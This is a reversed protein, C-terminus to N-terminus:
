DEIECLYKFTLGLPVTGVSTWPSCVIWSDTLRM